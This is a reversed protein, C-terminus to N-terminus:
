RTQGPRHDPAHSVLVRHRLSVCGGGGLHTADMKEYHAKLTDWYMFVGGVAALIVIFRLRAQITKAVQWANRWFM